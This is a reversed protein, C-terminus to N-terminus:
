PAPPAPPAPPPPPPAPPLPAVPGALVGPIDMGEAPSPAGEGTPGFLDSALNNLIGGLEGGIKSAELHLLAAIAAAAGALFPLLYVALAIRELHLGLLIQAENAILTALALALPVLVAGVTFNRAHTKM